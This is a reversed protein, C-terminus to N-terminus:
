LTLDSDDVAQRARVLRFIAGNHVPAGVTTPIGRSDTIAKEGTRVAAAQEPDFAEIADLATGAAAVDVPKANVYVRVTESM